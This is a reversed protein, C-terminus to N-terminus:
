RFNCALIDILENLVVTEMAVSSISVSWMEKASIRYFEILSYVVNLNLVPEHNTVLEVLSINERWVEQM